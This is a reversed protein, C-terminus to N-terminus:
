IKNKSATLKDYYECEEAYMESNCFEGSMLCSDIEDVIKSKLYYLFRQDETEDKAFHENRFKAQFNDFQKEFEQMTQYRKLGKYLARRAEPTCNQSKDFRDEECETEKDIQVKCYLTIGPGCRAIIRKEEGCFYLDWNAFYGLFTCQECTHHYRPM